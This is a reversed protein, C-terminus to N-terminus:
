HENKRIYGNKLVYLNFRINADILDSGIDDRKLQIDTLAITPLENLVTNIFHRIQTYSGQTPFKIQYKILSDSYSQSAYDVKDIALGADTAAHLIQAIKSNAENQKPMLGNLHAIVDFQKDPKANGNEATVKTELQAMNIQLMNKKQVNPVVIFLMLLISLFIFFLGLNGQWSLQRWKYHLKSDKNFLPKVM